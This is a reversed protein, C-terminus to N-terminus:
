ADHLSRCVPCEFDSYEVITVPSKPDGLAPSDSMHIAAMNEALTDKTMDSLEGRLLYRGDKSVYFKVTQKNGEIVVDIDTELIGEVPSQKLPGVAVKVAPGLAYLNRLYAEIDKQSQSSTVSATAAATPKSQQAHMGFGILPTLCLAMLRLPTKVFTRM